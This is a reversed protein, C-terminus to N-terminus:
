YPTFDKDDSDFSFENEDCAYKSQRSFQHDRFEERSKHSSENRRQRAYRRHLLAEREENERKAQAFDKRLIQLGMQTLELEYGKNADTVNVAIIASLATVCSVSLFWTGFGWGENHSVVPLNVNKRKRSSPHYLGSRSHHIQQVDDVEEIFSPNSTFLKSGVFSLAKYFASFGTVSALYLTCARKTLTKRKHARLVKRALHKDTILIHPLHEAFCDLLDSEDRVCAIEASAHMPVGDPRNPHGHPQRDDHFNHNQPKRTRERAREHKEASRMAHCVSDFDHEEISSNFGDEHEMDLDSNSLPTCTNKESDRYNLSQQEYQSHFDKQHQRPQKKASHQFSQPMVNLPQNEDNDSYFDQEGRTANVFDAM